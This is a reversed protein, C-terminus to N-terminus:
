VDDLRARGFEIGFPKCFIFVTRRAGPDAALTYERAGSSAGVAAVEVDGLSTQIMTGLSDRTTLVVVTGPGPTVTFSSDFALAFGGGARAVLTVSGVAAHGGLGEFAGRAIPRDSTTGADTTSGGDSQTGADSSFGADTTSGGDSQTGADSSFGADAANGADTAAGGADGRFGEYVFRADCGFAALAFAFAGSLGTWRAGFSM